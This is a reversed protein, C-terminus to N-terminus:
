SLVIVKVCVRHSSSETMGESLANGTNAFSASPALTNGDTACGSGTRTLGAMNPTSKAGM